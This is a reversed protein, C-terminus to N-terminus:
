TRGRNIDLAQGELHRFNLVILNYGFMRYHMREMQNYYTSLGTDLQNFLSKFLTIEILPVGVSLKLQELKRMHPYNGTSLSYKM